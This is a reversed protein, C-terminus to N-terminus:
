GMSHSLLWFLGPGCHPLSVALFGTKSGCCNKAAAPNKQNNGDNQRETPLPKTKPQQRNSESISQRHTIAAFLPPRSASGGCKHPKSSFGTNCIVTQYATATLCRGYKPQTATLGLLLGLSTRPKSRDFPIPCQV